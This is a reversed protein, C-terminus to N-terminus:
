LAGDGDAAVLDLSAVALPGGDKPSVAFARPAELRCPIIWRSSEGYDLGLRPQFFVADATSAVRQLIAPLIDKFGIQERPWIADLLVCGRIQSQRGRRMHGLAFWGEHGRGDRFVCIDFPHNHASEGYRWQLFAASRDTTIRHPPRHRRFLEALKDWDRCPEIILDVSRRALLQLVPNACRGLVRAIDAAFANSTRRTLFAPLMVELKLPLMYETDSDPVAGAGVTKWLAGSNANCTTSFFFSYGPSNLYRKFLYFGLARAQPEVFFSGSGLGLRRQDGALFMGPFALLTGMIVGSADRICLGHQSVGQALPNDILLWQLRRHTSASDDRVPGQISSGHDRRGEWSDLFRAVDPLASGLLPQIEFRKTAATSSGVLM